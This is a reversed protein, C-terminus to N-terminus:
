PMILELPVDSTLQFSFAIVGPKAQTVNDSWDSMAVRDIKRQEFLKGSINIGDCLEEWKLLTSIQEAATRKPEDLALGRVDIIWDDFGYIEKVTGSSGLVNTKIINKARRFSFMTAPPLEFSALDIMKTRGNAEYCQYSGGQFTAAFIIPTGMWSLSESEYNNPLVELGKYSLNAPPTQKLPETIYVPSNIGFAGKLLQSVKYRQDAM